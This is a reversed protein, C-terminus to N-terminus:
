LFASLSRNYLDLFVCRRVPSPSPSRASFRMIERCWILLRVRFRHDHDHNLYRSVSSFLQPVRPFARGPGSQPALPTTQENGTAVTVAEVAIEAIM